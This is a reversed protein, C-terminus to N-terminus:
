WIAAMLINTEQGAVHLENSFSPTQKINFISLKDILPSNNDMFVKYGQDGLKLKVKILILDLCNRFIVPKDTKSVVLPKTSAKIVYTGGLRAILEISFLGNENIEIYDTFTLTHKM